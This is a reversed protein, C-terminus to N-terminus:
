KRSTSNVYNQWSFHWLVISAVITLTAFVFGAILGVTVHHLKTWDQEDAISGMLVAFFIGVGLAIVITIGAHNLINPM